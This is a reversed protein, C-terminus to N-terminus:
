RSRERQCENERLQLLVKTNGAAVDVVDVIRETERVTQGVLGGDLAQVGAGGAGVGGAGDDAAGAVVRRHANEGVVLVLLLAVLLLLALLAAGLESGPLLAFRSQITTPLRVSDGDYLM